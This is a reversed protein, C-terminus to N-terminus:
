MLLGIILVFWGGSGDVGPCFPLFTFTLKERDVSHLCVPPCLPIAGSM